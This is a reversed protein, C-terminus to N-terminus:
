GGLPVFGPAARGGPQCAPATIVASGVRVSPTTASRGGSGLSTSAIV